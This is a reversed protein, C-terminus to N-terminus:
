KCILTVAASASSSLFHDPKTKELNLFSMSCTSSMACPLKRNKVAKLECLNLIRGSSGQQDM